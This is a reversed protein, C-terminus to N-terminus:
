FTKCRRNIFKQIINLGKNIYDIRTEIESFGLKPSNSKIIKKGFRTYTHAYKNRENELESLFEKFHDIDFYSNKYKKIKGEIKVIETEGITAVIKDRFKKYKFSYNIQRINNKVEENLVKNKVKADIYAFLIFHMKEEIWGCCEMSALKLALAVDISGNKELNELITINKKVNKISLDYM